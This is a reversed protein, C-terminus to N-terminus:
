GVVGAEPCFLYIRHIRQEHTEEEESLYDRKSKRRSATTKIILQSETARLFECLVDRRVHTEFGKTGYPERRAGGVTEMDSWARQWAIPSGNPSQILRGGRELKGRCADVFRTGPRTVSIGIRRLPDHEEIGLEGRDAEWIWGELRFQGIDIDEQDSRGYGHEQPLVFSYPEEIATLARVLAPATAPSVLASTVYTSGWGFGTAFEVAADVILTKPDDAGIALTLDAETLEPWDDRGVNHLLFVPEPPVPEREDSLWSSELTDIWASLWSAWPDDPKDGGETKIFAGEDCLDGAVLQLAHEELMQRWSEGRPSSGHHNDRESYDLIELRPDERRIDSLGLRDLIWREARDCVEDVDLDFRTGFPGYVYPLTDMSDFHFRETKYDRNGSGTRYFYDVRELKCARPMNALGLQSVLDPALVDPFATALRLAGRRAFERVSVHPWSKDCAIAALDTALLAVCEPKERTARTIVMLAWVQASLWYFPLTESAFPAADRQTTRKLLARAFHEDGMMILSRASHAARWRTAKDPAGFLSWMLSALVEATETPLEPVAVPESELNDLSWGLLAAREERDLALALQSATTFLTPADLRELSSGVVRLVVGAPDSLVDLKLLKDVVQATLGAYRTLGGFHTEVFRTIAAAIRERLAQSRKWEAAARVLAELVDDAHLRAVPHDVGVAGLADVFAGRESPVLGEAVRELYQSIRDAGYLEALEALDRDVCDPDATGARALVDDAQRARQEWESEGDNRRSPHPFREEDTTPACYPRLVEIAETDALDVGDAWEILARAAGSRHDPLLDRRIRLSVTALAASREPGQPIQELLETTTRSAATTEGALPLLALAQAPKLFGAEVLPRAVTPVTAHLYM